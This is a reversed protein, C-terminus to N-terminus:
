LIIRRHVRSTLSGGPGPPLIGTTVGGAAVDRASDLSTYQRFGPFLFFLYALKVGTTMRGPVFCDRRFM